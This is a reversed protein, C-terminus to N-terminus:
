CIQLKNSESGSAIEGSESASPSEPSEKILYNRRDALEHPVEDLSIYDDVVGQDGVGHQEDEDSDGELLMDESSVTHSEQEKRLAELRSEM